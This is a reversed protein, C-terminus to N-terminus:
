YHCRVPRRWLHSNNCGFNARRQAYPNSAPRYRNRNAFSWHHRRNSCKGRSWFPLFDQIFAGLNNRPTPFGLLAALTPALDSQEIVSYYKFDDQFDQPVQFSRKLNALKPSIFVLAPSTEGPASGGHNGADNMGHDGLLILLTSELHPYSEISTYIQKVIGDMEIQKPLMNTSNVPNTSEASRPNSM